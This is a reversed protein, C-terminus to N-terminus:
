SANKTRWISKSNPQKWQYEDLQSLVIGQTQSFMAFMLFFMMLSFLSIGFVSVVALIYAPEIQIMWVYRCCVLLTGCGAAMTALVGSFVLSRIAIREMFPMLMRFGHILLNFYGMKSEDFYRSGRECAVYDVPVRLNVLSSSYCLDFYPHHVIKKATFGHYAAFNGSRLIKGTLTKFLMVFAFYLARFKWSVKRKTRRALVIKPRIYDAGLQAILNPLDEPRDEGDSDMTVVVDENRFEDRLSRLAYVLARQHGLNFPPTLVCVDPLSQIDQVRPDTGASDDIVVFRLEPGLDTKVARRRLELFSDVDTYCPVVIWINMKSM